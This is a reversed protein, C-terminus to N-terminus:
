PCVAMKKRLTIHSATETVRRFGAKEYFAAYPTPVTVDLLPAQSQRTRLMLLLRGVGRREWQPAVMGWVLEDHDTHQRLGGCALLQGDHQLVYFHSPGADLYAAFQPERQPDRQHLLALCGARDSPQYPRSDM